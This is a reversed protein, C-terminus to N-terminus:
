ESLRSSNIIVQQTGIIHASGSAVFSIYPKLMQNSISCALFVYLIRILCHLSIFLEVRSSIICIYISFLNLFFLLDINDRSLPPFIWVTLSQSAEVALSLPNCKISLPLSNPFIHASEFCRTPHFSCM